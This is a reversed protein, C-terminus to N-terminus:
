RDDTPCLSKEFYSIEPYDMELFEHYCSWLEGGFGASFEWEAFLSLISTDPNEQRMVEMESLLDNLTKGHTLMWQLRYQEYAKRAPTMGSEEEHWVYM